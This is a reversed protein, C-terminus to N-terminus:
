RRAAMSARHSFGPTWITGPQFPLSLPRVPLKRSQITPNFVDWALWYLMSVLLM